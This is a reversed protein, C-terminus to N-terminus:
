ESENELQKLKLKAPIAYPSEPFQELFYRFDELKESNEIMKWTSEAAESVMRKERLDLEKKKKDEHPYQGYERQQEEDMIKLLREKDMMIQWADRGESSLEFAYDGIYMTAKEARAAKIFDPESVWILFQETLVGSTGVKSKKRNDYSYSYDRQNLDIQGQETELDLNKGKLFTFRGAHIFSLKIERDTCIVKGPCEKVAVLEIEKNKTEAKFSRPKFKTLDEKKYYDTDVAKTCAGIFLSILIMLYIRM